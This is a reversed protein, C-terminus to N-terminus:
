WMSMCPTPRGLGALDPLRIVLAVRDPALSALASRPSTPARMEQHPGTDQDPGDLQDVRGAGDAAPLLEQQPRGPLPLEAMPHPRHGRGSLAAQRHRRFGDADLRLANDAAVERTRRQAIRDFFAKVALRPNAKARLRPQLPSHVPGPMPPTMAQPATRASRRPRATSRISCSPRM